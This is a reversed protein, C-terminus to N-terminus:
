APLGDRAACHGGCRPHDGGHVRGGTLPVCGYSPHIRVGCGWEAWAKSHSGAAWGAWAAPWPAAERAKGPTASRILDKVDEAYAHGDDGFVGRYPDPNLAHHVGFGQAHAGPLQTM